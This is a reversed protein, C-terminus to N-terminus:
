KAHHVPDIHPKSRIPRNGAVFIRIDRGRENELAHLRNASAPKTLRRAEATRSRASRIGARPHAAPRARAGDAAHGAGAEGKGRTGVAPLHRHRSAEVFDEPTLDRVVRAPAGDALSNAPIEAGAKVSAMAAVIASEGIVAEDMVVANMGVMANHGIRCGHLVAGHGIHGEEGVVVDLNPFSHM